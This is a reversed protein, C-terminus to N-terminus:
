HLTEAAEGAEVLWHWDSRGEWGWLMIVVLFTELRQQSDGEPFCFWGRNLIM